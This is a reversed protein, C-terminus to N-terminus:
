ASCHRFCLLLHRASRNQRFSPPLQRASSHHLFSPPLHRASCNQRLRPLLRRFCVVLVAQASRVQSTSGFSVKALTSTNDGLLRSNVDLTRALTKEQTEISDAMTAPSKLETCDTAVEQAATQHPPHPPSAPGTKKKNKPKNKRAATRKAM